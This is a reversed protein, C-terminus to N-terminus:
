QETFVLTMQNINKEDPKPPKKRMLLKTINRREMINVAVLTALQHLTVKSNSNKNILKLLLYVTM